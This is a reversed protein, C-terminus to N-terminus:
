KGRADQTTPAILRLEMTCVLGRLCSAICFFVCPYVSPLLLEPGPQQCTRLACVYACLFSDPLLSELMIFTLPSTKKVLPKM